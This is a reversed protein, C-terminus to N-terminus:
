RCYTDLAEQARADGLSLARNLSACAAERQGLNLLAYGRMFYANARNPDIKLLENYDTLAEQWRGFHMELYGKIELSEVQKIPDINNQLAYPAYMLASDLKNMSIYSKTIRLYTGPYVNGYRYKRCAEVTLKSWKVMNHWKVSDAVERNIEYHEAMKEFGEIFYPHKKIVDDFLTVTDKWVKTRHYSIFTFSSAFLLIVILFITSKNIQRNTPKSTQQNATALTTQEKQRLYVYLCAVIFLFAVMPFYAYRDHASIAVIPIIQMVPFITTGYLLGAFILQRRMPKAKWIIYCAAILILPSSWVLFPLTQNNYFYYSVHPYIFCLPLPFVFKVIYFALPYSIFLYGKYSKFFEMFDGVPPAGAGRLEISLIGLIVAIAIFPIKELFVRQSFIKRKYYWDFAFLTIPLAMATPKALGSLVFFLFSYILYKNKLGNKIYKIYFILAPFGFFALLLDGRGTVWSVTEVSLPHVAYLLAAALSAASNGVLIYILMFVLVINILHYLLSMLHYGAPDLEFLQYDLSHSLIKMPCYMDYYSKTFMNKVHEGTFSRIDPNQVVISEDDWYRTFDNELSSPFYIAATLLLIAGLIFYRYTRFFGTDPLEILRKDTAIPKKKPQQYKKNM